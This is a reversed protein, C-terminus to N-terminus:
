SPPRLLMMGYGFATHRGLGRGLLSVFADSDKIVFRGQLQVQPRVLASAERKGERKSTRRMQKVLRFGQVALHIEDIAGSLLLRDRAWECYVDDRRRGTGADVSLFIDQEVGTRSKRIVPMCQVDMGLHRGARFTPVIRSIIDDPKPCVAMVSPDSFDDLRERMEAADRTSYGLIRPPRGPQWHLRWPRPAFEGFAAALWAHIGYGLDEDARGNLGQMELFRLLAASDPRIEVLQLAVM